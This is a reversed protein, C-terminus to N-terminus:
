KLENLGYGCNSIMKNNVESYYKYGGGGSYTNLIKYYDAGYRKRLMSLYRATLRTNIYPDKAMENKYVGLKLENEYIEKGTSNLFQGLGTAGSRPNVDNPNFNSEQEFISLLYHPDIGENVCTDLVFRLLEPSLSHPYKSSLAYKFDNSVQEGTSVRVDDGGRNVIRIESQRKVESVTNNLNNISNEMQIVKEALVDREDSVSQLEDTTKSKEQTALSIQVDKEKLKSDYQKVDCYIGKITTSLFTVALTFLIMGLLLRSINRLLRRKKERRIIKCYSFM